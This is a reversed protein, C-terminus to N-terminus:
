VHTSFSLTSFYILHLSATWIEHWMVTDYPLIGLSCERPHPM